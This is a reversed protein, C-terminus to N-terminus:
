NLRAAKSKMEELTERIAAADSAHPARNLYQALDTAALGYCDLAAYILGRERFRDAGESVVLLLDAVGLARTYDGAKVYIGKLNSLMRALIKKRPFPMLHEQRLQLRGGSLRDLRRQCDAESLLEGGYFPDVLVGQPEDEVRVIFHGPLGVGCASLGVRRGVEMFVTSLTIPIGIRRDLV